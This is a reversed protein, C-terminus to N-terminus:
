ENCKKPYFNNERFWTDFPSSTGETSRMEAFEPRFKRSQDEVKIFPSHLSRVKHSSNSKRLTQLHDHPSALNFRKMYALVDVFKLVTMNEKTALSFVSSSGSHEVSAAMGVMIISRKQDAGCTTHLNHM